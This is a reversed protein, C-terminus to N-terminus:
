DSTWRTVSGGRCRRIGRLHLFTNGTDGSYVTVRGDPLVTMRRRTVLRIRKLAERRNLKTCKSSYGQISRRTRCSPYPAREIRIREGQRELVNIVV